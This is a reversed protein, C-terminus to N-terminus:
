FEVLKKSSKCITSNKVKKWHIVYVLAKILNNIPIILFNSKKVRITILSAMDGNTILSAMDGNSINKSKSCFLVESVRVTYWSPKHTINHSLELFIIQVRVKTQPYIPSIGM